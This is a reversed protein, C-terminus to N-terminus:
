TTDSGHVMNSTPNQNNYNALSWYDSNNQLPMLVMAVTASPAMTQLSAFKRPDTETPAPVMTCGEATTFPSAPGTTMPASQM